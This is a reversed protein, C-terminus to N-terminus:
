CGPLCPVWATCTPPWTAPHTARLPIRGLRRRGTGPHEPEGPFGVLAGTFDLKPTTTRGRTGSAPGLRGHPLGLRHAARLAGAVARVLEMAEHRSKRGVRQGVIALTTAGVWEMVVYPPDHELGLELVRMAAPHDISPRWHAAPSGADGLSRADAHAASLDRVEVETVGDEAVARYSIGDPGAGLQALLRYRDLSM